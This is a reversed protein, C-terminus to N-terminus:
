AIAVTRPAVATGVTAERIRQRVEPSPSEVVSGGPISRTVVAGAMVKSGEGITIPGILTAGPGVHVNRELTPAGTRRTGPDIGMGLTVNQFLICGRAVRAAHSIALGMGHVIMVGPELEANWHIDSGYLQRILRSVVKAGTMSGATRLARMLRYAALIQLGIKQVLDSPLRDTAPTPHGYRSEYHQLVARDERLDLLARAAIAAGDKEFRGVFRVLEDLAKEASGAAQRVGRFYEVAYVLTTGALAVRQLGARDALEVVRLAWGAGRRAPEPALVAAALFPRVLPNLDLAFRWPSAHRLDSHKEAIRHDCMGYGRARSRWKELSTHDSGHLTWAAECFRFAVGSKELRLGLEIDESLRLSTDLGGVSLYDERRLSANGTFLLNGKLALKGTRIAEANRDLMASHWREFVPMAPLSSDARIRGLVVARGADRHAVLHQELFDRAIQMDDDVFLVLEGQAALAGAHRAAAAGANRQRVLHLAYPTRLDGIAAEVPPSSGDDVVRVEFEAPSVTQDSLQLLLRRLLAARNYTPIVVSLKM